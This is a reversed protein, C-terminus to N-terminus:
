IRVEKFYGGKLEKETIEVKWDKIVELYTELVQVVEVQFALLHKEREEKPIRNDDLSKIAEDMRMNVTIFRKKLEDIVETTPTVTESLRM